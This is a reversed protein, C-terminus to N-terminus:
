SEPTARRGPRGPQDSAGTFGWLVRTVRLVFAACATLAAAVLVGRASAGDLGFVVVPAGLLCFLAAALFAGTVLAYGIEVTVADRQAQDRTGM